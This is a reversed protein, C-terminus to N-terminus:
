SKTNNKFHHMSCILIFTTPFRPIDSDNESTVQEQTYFPVEYKLPYLAYSCFRRKMTLTSVLIDLTTLLRPLLTVSHQLMIVLRPLLTVSHQLM